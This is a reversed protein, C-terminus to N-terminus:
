AGEDSEDADRLVQTRLEPSIYIGQMVMQDLIPAIREILGRRRAELLIGLSGTMLLGLAKAQRRALLDDLIVLADTSALVLSLAETEGAGLGDAVRPNRSIPHVHIWSLQGIEPDGPMTGAQYERLVAEPIWIEGYLSGLTDLLGIGALVILPTTNSVVLRMSRNGPPPDQM